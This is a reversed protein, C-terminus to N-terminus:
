WELKKRDAIMKRKNESGTLYQLNWPVHLGCFLEHKIPHIHDVEMGAPCAAYIAHVEAEYFATIGTKPVRQRASHYRCKRRHKERQEPDQMRLAHRHNADDKHAKQYDRLHQKRREHDRYYSARNSEQAKEKNRAYWGRMYAAHEEKTRGM